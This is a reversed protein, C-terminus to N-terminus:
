LYTSMAANQYCFVFLRITLQFIPKGLNQLSGKELNSCLNNYVQRCINQM